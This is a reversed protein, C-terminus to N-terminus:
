RAARTRLFRDDALVVSTEIQRRPIRWYKTLLRDKTEADTLIFGHKRYFAVAWGADAWTGILVPKTTQERLFQLLRSGIGRRQHRPIVYAHRMLTVEGRDQIGM